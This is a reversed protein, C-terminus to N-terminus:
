LRFKGNLKIGESEKAEKLSEKILKDKISFRDKQDAEYLGRKARIIDNVSKASETLGLFGVQALDEDSKELLPKVKIFLHQVESATKCELFKDEFKEIAPFNKKYDEYYNQVELPTKPSESSEEKKMEKKKMEEKEEKDDEKSDDESEKEESEESDDEDEEEKMDKKKAKAEIVQDLLESEKLIDKFSDLEECAKKFAEKIKDLEECAQDFSENLKDHEEKLNVYDDADVKTNQEAIAKEYLGKLKQYQEKSEDMINLAKTLKESDKESSEKVEELEKEMESIKSKAEELSKVTEEKKETAEKLAIEKKSAEEKLAEITEQTSKSIDEILDEYPIKEEESFRSFMDQLDSLEELRINLDEKKNAEKLSKKINSYMLKADTSMQKKEKIIEGKNEDKSLAKEDLSKNDILNTVFNENSEKKDELTVKVSQSGELVNDAVRELMYTEPNVTVGDNMFEGFGSSSLEIRGGAELVEQMDRGNSGVLYMDAKVTGMNEDIRLNDWVCFIDKTSGEEKPHDMLGIGGSWIHKQERIVREWLQKPYIRNNKNKIFRSVDAEYAGVCKRPGAETNIMRKEELINIPKLNSNLSYSFNERLRQLAM